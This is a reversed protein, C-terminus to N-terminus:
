MQFQNLGPTINEAEEPIHLRICLPEKRDSLTYKKM